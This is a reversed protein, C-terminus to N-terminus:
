WRYIFRTGIIDQSYDARPLNSDYNSYGAYFQVDGNKIVPIKIEARWRQRQDRRKKEISPTNSSYNRDEYRLALQLIAIKTFLEFRHIYRLKINSSKYDFERAQADENKYQYGFNFYSRLGRRFYYFDAEGANITANRASREEITKDSYIYAARGFWKKALFGSVSPSIRYFELFKKQDLNSVIYFLSVGSDFKGLDFDLSSGLLHTQRNVRSFEAYSSQSYDYSMDLETNDSLQSHLGVSADLTLAYDSLSSSLDVEDVAVNSDYEAGIAIEARFETNKEDDSFVPTTFFYTVLVILLHNRYYLRM